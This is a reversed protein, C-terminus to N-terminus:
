GLFSLATFVLIDKCASLQSKKPKFNNNPHFFNLFRWYITEFTLPPLDLTKDKKNININILDAARDSAFKTVFCQKFNSLFALTYKSEAM